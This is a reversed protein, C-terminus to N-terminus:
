KGSGFTISPSKATSGLTGKGFSAIPGAGAQVVHLTPNSADTRNIFAYTDTQTLTGLELPDNPLSSLSAEATTLRTDLDTTVGLPAYRRERM